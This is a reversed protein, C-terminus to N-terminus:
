YLSGASMSWPAIVLGSLNYVRTTHSSGEGDGKEYSSSNKHLLTAVCKGRRGREFLWFACYSSSDKHLVLNLLILLTPHRAACKDSSSCALPIVIKTMLESEKQRFIESDLSSRLRRNGRRPTRRENM